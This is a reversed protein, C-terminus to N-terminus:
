YYCVPKQEFGDKAGRTISIRVHRASRDVGDLVNNKAMKHALLSPGGGGDSDRDRKDKRSADAMDVNADRDEWSEPVDDNIVTNNGEDTEVILASADSVDGLGDDKVKM